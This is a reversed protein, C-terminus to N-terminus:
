MLVDCRQKSTIIVTNDHQTRAPNLNWHHCTVNVQTWDINRPGTIIIWLIQSFIEKYNVGFVYVKKGGKLYLSAYEEIFQAMMPECSPKTGRQCWAMVQVLASKNNNYGTSIASTIGGSDHDWFIYNMILHIGPSTKARLCRSVCPHTTLVTAVSARTSFCWAM